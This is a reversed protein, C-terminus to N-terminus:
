VLFTALSGHNVICAAEDRRKPELILACHLDCYWTMTPDKQSMELLWFWTSFTNNHWFLQFNKKILQDFFTGM